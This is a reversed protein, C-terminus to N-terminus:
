LYVLGAPEENLTSTEQAVGYPEKEKERIVAKTHQIYKCSQQHTFVECYVM